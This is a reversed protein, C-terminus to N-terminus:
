TDIRVLKGSDFVPVVINLERLELWDIKILM